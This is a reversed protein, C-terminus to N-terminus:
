PTVILSQDGASPTPEVPTKASSTADIAKADAIGAVPVGRDPANPPWIKYAIGGMAIATAIVWMVIQLKANAISTQVKEYNTEIRLESMKSESELKTFLREFKTSSDAMLTDFKHNMDKVAAEWDKRHLDIKNDLKNLRLEIWDSSPTQPNMSDIGERMIDDWEPYTQTDEDTFLAEDFVPPDTKM